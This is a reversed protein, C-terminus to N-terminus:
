RRSRTADKMTASFVVKRTENLWVAMARIAPSRRGAAHPDAATASDDLAHPWFAAFMEYTRRGFLMTDVHPMGDLAQKHVDEDSVVWNLSGDPAAFYGDASVQNFMVIRRAKGTQHQDSM